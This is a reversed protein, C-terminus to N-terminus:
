PYHSMGKTDIVAIYQVLQNVPKMIQLKPNLAESTVITSIRMHTEKGREPTIGLLIFLDQGKM